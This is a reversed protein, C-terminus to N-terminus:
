PLGPFVANLRHCLSEALSGAPLLDIEDTISGNPAFVFQTLRIRTEATPCAPTGSCLQGTKPDLRQTSDVYFFGGANGNIYLNEKARYAYDDPGIKKWEGNGGGRSTFPLALPGGNVTTQSSYAVTGDSHFVYTLPRDVTSGPRTVDCSWVGTIQPAATAEGNRSFSTVFMASLILAVLM